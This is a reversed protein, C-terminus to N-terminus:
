ILLLGLVFIPIAATLGDIRDYMGGHGPLLQGSDKVGSQRKLMSEFLDGIVAWLCTIIILILFSVVRVGSLNYAMVGVDVIDFMLLLAGIITVILASLVGGFLGELTKKPSIQPALLRRGWFMGTFYAGIDVACIIALSYLLFSPGFKEQLEILGVVCPVFIMIGVFWQWATTVFCNHKDTTYRWLFYPAVLWWMGSVILTPQAPFFQTLLVIMLFVVLFSMKKKYNKGWFFGSFEWVAIAVVLSVLLSFVILPLYFIAVVVLAVLILATNVRQMLM